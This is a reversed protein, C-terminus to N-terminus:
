QHAGGLMLPEIHIKQQFAALTKRCYIGVGVQTVAMLSLAVARRLNDPASLGELMGACLGAVLSDGAGVTSIVEVAPVHARWHREPGFWYVGGAGASVVVQAIGSQQLQGVCGALAQDDNIASGTLEELEALNPKILEPMGRIGASLAEGSTDLWVRKGRERWMEIMGELQAPSVGPPLSGAVILHDFRDALTELRALLRAWDGKGAKLGPLNIDTVRGGTESVKVNIRTSGPLRVVDDYIGYRDFLTRFSADNDLGLFGSVYPRHGLDALVRAVNIGKGAAGLQGASAINVQGANLQPLSVTLDLAPNLTLTLVSM